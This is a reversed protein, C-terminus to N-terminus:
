AFPALADEGTSRFMSHSAPPCNSGVGTPTSSVLCPSRSAFCHEASVQSALGIEGRRSSFHVQVTFSLPDKVNEGEWGTQKEETHM